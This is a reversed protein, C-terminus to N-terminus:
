TALRRARLVSDSVTVGDPGAEHHHRETRTRVQAVEVEWEEPDLAPFLDEPTFLWEPRGHRLGTALDDPHHGVVLLTGGPAVADALRRVVDRMGGDPLHLFHSTVLSWREEGPEWSRVDAQRWEVHDAVGDADAREAGRRLATEAFDLATVRWGRRALWLADGGEGAGVDLARGPPLESAEAELQANAHGSWVSGRGAYREEWWPREFWQARSAAVAVEADEEVLDANIAAGAVFGAGAAVVVQAMPDAVNGAAWVGPVSTAGMPGTVVRTGLAVDGRRVEEMAAGLGELLASRAQLMGAVAVADAPLLQGDGLRVGLLRGPEGEIREVESELVRVGRADLRERDAADPLPGLRGDVLLTVDETLQRWMLAQHSSLPSTGLVVVTRDRVEWGHCYPCHLVGRGWHERVGPVDPLGDVLGTAVLLRRAELERGDETTVVFGTGPRDWPRAKSAAVREVRVGYAEVEARGEALLEGPPTGERGLYGHVGDAPANRPDGADLVLVDRRSRGLALAGSLGAAGGGVVVVDYAPRPSTEQATM